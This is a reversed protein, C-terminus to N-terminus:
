ESCTCRSVRLLYQVRDPHVGELCYRHLDLEDDDDEIEIAMQSSSGPTQAPHQRPNDARHIYPTRRSQNRFASPPSPSEHTSCAIVQKFQDYTFSVRPVNNQPSHRVASTGESGESSEQSRARPHSLPSQYITAASNEVHTDSPHPDTGHHRVADVWAFVREGVHRGMERRIVSEASPARARFMHRDDEGTFRRPTKPSVALEPRSGADPDHALPSPLSWTMEPAVMDMEDDDAHAMDGCASEQDIAEDADGEVSSEESAGTLDIIRRGYTPLSVDGVASEGESDDESEGSEESEEESETRTSTEMLHCIEDEKHEHFVCPHFTTPDRHDLKDIMITKGHVKRVRALDSRFQGNRAKLSMIKAQREGRRRSRSEAATALYSAAGVVYYERLPNGITTEVHIEELHSSYRSGKCRWHHLRLEDIIKNQLDRM